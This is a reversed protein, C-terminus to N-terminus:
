VGVEFSIPKPSETAYGREFQMGQEIFQTVEVPLLICGRTGTTGEPYYSAVGVIANKHSTQERIALAVPCRDGFSFEAGDILRQEVTVRVM